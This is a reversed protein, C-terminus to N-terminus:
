QDERWEDHTGQQWVKFDTPVLDRVAMAFAVNQAEEETEAEVELYRDPLQALFKV